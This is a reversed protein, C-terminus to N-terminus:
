SKDDFKPKTCLADWISVTTGDDDWTHRRDVKLADITVSPRDVITFKRRSLWRNKNALRSTNKHYYCLMFVYAVRYVAYRKRIYYIICQMPRDTNCTRGRRDYWMQYRPAIRLIKDPTLKPAARESWGYFLLFLVLFVCRM